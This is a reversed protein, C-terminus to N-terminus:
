GPGAPTVAQLVGGLERHAELSGLQHRGTAHAPFWSVFNLPPGRKLHKELKQGPVVVSRMALIQSPVVHKLMKERKQGPVAVSCVTHDSSPIVHELYRKHKQGAVAASHLALEPHYLMDSTSRTSGNQCLRSVERTERRACRGLVKHPDSITCGVQSAGQMQGPVAVSSVTVSRVTLGGFFISTTADSHSSAEGLPSMTNHYAWRAYSWWFLRRSHVGAHPPPPVHEVICASGCRTLYDDSNLMRVCFCRLRFLEEREKSLYWCLAQGDVGSGFLVPLQLGDATTSWGHRVWVSQLTTQIPRTMRPFAKQTGRHGAEVEEARHDEVAEVKHPTTSTQLESTPYQAAGHYTVICISHSPAMQTTSPADNNSIHTDKSGNCLGHRVSLQNEKDEFSNDGSGSSSGSYNRSDVSGM